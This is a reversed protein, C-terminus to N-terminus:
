AYLVNDAVQAKALLGFSRHAMGLVFGQKCRQLLGSESVRAAVHLQKQMDHKTM